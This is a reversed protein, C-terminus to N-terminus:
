AARNQRGAGSKAKKEKAAKRRAHLQHALVIQVIASYNKGWVILAAVGIAFFAVAFLLSAVGM